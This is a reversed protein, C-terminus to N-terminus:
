FATLLAAVGADLVYKYRINAIATTKAMAVAATLSPAIYFITWKQSIHKYDNDGNLPLAENITYAGTANTSFIQIRNIRAYLTM